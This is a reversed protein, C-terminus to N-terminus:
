NEYNVGMNLFRIFYVSMLFNLCSCYLNFGDDESPRLEIYTNM